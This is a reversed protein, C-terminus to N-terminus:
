SQNYMLEKVTESKSWEGLIVIFSLDRAIQMNHAYPNIVKEQVLSYWCFASHLSMCIDDSKLFRATVQANLNNSM